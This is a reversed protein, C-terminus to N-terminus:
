TIANGTSVEEGYDCSHTYCEVKFDYTGAALGTRTVGDEEYISSLVDSAFELWTTSPQKRYYSKIFTDPLAYGDLTVTGAVPNSINEITRYHVWHGNTKSTNLEERCWYMESNNLNLTRNLYTSSLTQTIWMASDNLQVYAAYNGGLISITMIAREGVNWGNGLPDAFDPDTVDFIDQIDPLNSEYCGVLPYNDCCAVKIISDFSFEIIVKALHGDGWEPESISIEKVKGYEGSKLYINISDHMPIMTLADLLYEPVLTEFRYQKQWKQWIPHPMQDGDPQAEEEIPYTPNAVDVDLYLQNRFGTQYLVDGFDCSNSWELILYNNSIYISM